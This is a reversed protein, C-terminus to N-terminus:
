LTTLEKDSEAMATTQGEATGHTSERLFLIKVTAFVLKLDQALSMRNIYMLDMQLKDRPETNYRGYVQAFGTLGAKVQLRLNFEPLVQEYQEAIEPREPRPGVVTMDGKLINFLQPLEDLSTKRLIRGVATIQEDSETLKATATLRTGNKMTRFKYITFKKMDKGIRKHRHIVPTGDTVLIVLAIVLFVPLLLICAFLAATFDLARKM